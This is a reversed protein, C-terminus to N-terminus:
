YLTIVYPMKQLIIKLKIRLKLLSKWRMEQYIVDGSQSTLFIIVRKKLNKLTTKVCKKLKEIRNKCMKALKKFELM